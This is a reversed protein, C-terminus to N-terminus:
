QLSIGTRRAAENITEVAIGTPGGESVMQVPPVHEFGIRLTRHPVPPTRFGFSWLGAAVALGAVALFPVARRLRGSMSLLSPEGSFPYLICGIRSTQLGFIASDPPM